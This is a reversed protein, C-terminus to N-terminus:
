LAEEHSAFSRAADTLASVTVASLGMDALGQLFMHLARLNHERFGREPVHIVVISGGERHLLSLLTQAIFEPDSIVTDNAFVDCLVNTFSYRQLVRWMEPSADAHPARFWRHREPPPIGSPGTLAAGRDASSASSHAPSGTAEAAGTGAVLEDAPEHAGREAGSGAEALGGASPAPPPEPQSGLAPSTRRAGDVTDPAAGLNTPRGASERLGDCLRESRLFAAEFDEESDGSYSRDAECHNAVEHGERLLARLDEEHGAVFDTCLFFTAKSNFQALLKGVEKLLCMDTQAVHCPADDITLAIKGRVGPYLAADYFCLAMPDIASILQRPPGLSTTARVLTKHMDNWMREKHSVARESLDAVCADVQSKIVAVQRDLAAAKGTLEFKADAAAVRASLQLRSDLAAATERLRLKAEAASAQESLQRLRTDVAASWAGSAESSRTTVAQAAIDAAQQFSKVVRRTKMIYQAGQALSGASLMNGFVSSATSTM